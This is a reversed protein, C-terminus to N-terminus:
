RPTSLEIHNKLWFDEPIKDTATPGDDAYNIVWDNDIYILNYEVSNRNDVMTKLAIASNKYRETMKLTWGIMLSKTFDDYIGDVIIEWPTPWSTQNFPDVKPNFPSFPMSNWYIWVEELPQDISDLRKRLELWSDLDSEINKKSM